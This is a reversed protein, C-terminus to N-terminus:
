PKYGSQNLIKQADNENLLQQLTANNNKMFVKIIQWGIYCATKGPAGEPFGQTTNGDQIFRIYEKQNTSFLLKKEIFFSWVQKENERCWKLQEGTYGIKVSDHLDPAMADCFYLLKGEYILQNLLEKKVTEVDYESQFWGKICDNVIYEKSFKRFMYKPFGLSPYFKSDGGLYMDLGIGMVSDTTVVNYNFGSIFTVVEPTFKEPYYYKLHKFFTTLGSKIREVEGETYISDSASYVNKIDPDNKFGNLQVVQLSDNPAPLRLMNRCYIDFFSNYKTQLLILDSVTLSDKISFIDKDLRNFELSVSINDVDPKNKDTKCGTFCILIALFMMLFNNIMAGNFM